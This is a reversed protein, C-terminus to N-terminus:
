KIKVGQRTMKGGSGQGEGLLNTIYYIIIVIAV